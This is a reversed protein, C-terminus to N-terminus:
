KAPIQEKTRGAAGDFLAIGCCLIPCGLSDVVFECIETRRGYLLASDFIDKGFSFNWIMM